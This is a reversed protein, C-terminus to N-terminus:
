LVNVCGELSSHMLSTILIPLAYDYMKWRLLSHFALNKVSHHLIEPLAAPSIQFQDSKATFRNIGHKTEGLPIGSVM